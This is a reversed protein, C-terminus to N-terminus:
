PVPVTPPTKSKRKPLSFIPSSGIWGVIVRPDKRKALIREVRRKKRVKDSEDPYLEGGIKTYSSGEQKAVQAREYLYGEPPRHRGRKKKPRDSKVYDALAQWIARNPEELRKRLAACLEPLSLIYILGEEELRETLFEVDMLENLLKLPMKIPRTIGTRTIIEQPENPATPVKVRKISDTTRNPMHDRRCRLLLKVSAISGELVLRPGSIGILEKPINGSNLM